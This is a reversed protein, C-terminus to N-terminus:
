SKRYSSEKNKDYNTMYKSKAKVYRYSDQYIGGRVGKEVMLLM